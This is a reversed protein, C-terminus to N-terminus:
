RSPEFKFNRAMGVYAYLTFIITLNNVTIRGFQEGSRYLDLIHAVFNLRFIFFLYASIVRVPLPLSM